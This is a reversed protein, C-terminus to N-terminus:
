AQFRIQLRRAEEQTVEMFEHILPDAEGSRWFLQVVLREMDRLPRTTLGAPPTGIM